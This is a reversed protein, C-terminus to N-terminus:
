GSLCVSLYNLFTCVQLMVIKSDFLDSKPSVYAAITINDRLNGVRTSENIFRHLSQSPLRLLSSILFLVCRRNAFHLLTLSFASYLRASSLPTSYLLPVPSLSSLCRYHKLDCSHSSSCSLFSFTNQSYFRSYKLWTSVHILCTCTSQLFPFPSILFIDCRVIDYWLVRCWMVGCRALSCWMVDCWM